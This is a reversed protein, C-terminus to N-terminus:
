YTLTKSRKGTIAVMGKEAIHVYGRFRWMHSFDLRLHRCDQNIIIIPSERCTFYTHRPLM